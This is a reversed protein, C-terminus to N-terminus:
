AEEEPECEAITAARAKPRYPSEGQIQYSEDTAELKDEMKSSGDDRAELELILAWAVEPELEALRRQFCDMGWALEEEDEESGVGEGEKEKTEDDTSNDESAVDEDGSWSTAVEEDKEGREEKVKADREEKSEGVEARSGPTTDEKEVKNVNVDQPQHFEETSATRAERPARTM